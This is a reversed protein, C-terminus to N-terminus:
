RQYEWAPVADKLRGKWVLDVWNDVIARDIPKHTKKAVLMAEILQWDLNYEPRKQYYPLSKGKEEVEEAPVGLKKRLVDLRSQASKTYEWPRDVNARNKPDFLVAILFNEVNFEPRGEIVKQAEPGYYFREEAPQRGIVPIERGVRTELVQSLPSFEIPSNREAYTWVSMVVVAGVTPWFWAGRRRSIEYGQASARRTERKAKEQATEKKKQGGADKKDKNKGNKSRGIIKDWDLREEQKEEGAAQQFLNSLGWIAREQDPSFRFKDL